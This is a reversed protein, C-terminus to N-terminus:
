KSTMKRAKEERMVSSNTSIFKKEGKSYIDIGGKQLFLKGYAQSAYDRIAEVTEFGADKSKVKKAILSMTKETPFDEEIMGFTYKDNYLMYDILIFNDEAVELRKIIDTKEADDKIETIKNGCYFITLSKKKVDYLYSYSVDEGAVGNIIVPKYKEAKGEPFVKKIESISKEITGNEAFDDLVIKGFGEASFYMDSNGFVFNLVNNEDAIIVYGRTM